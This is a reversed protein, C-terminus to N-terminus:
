TVENMLNYHTFFAYRQFVIHPRPFVNKRPDGRLIKFNKFGM